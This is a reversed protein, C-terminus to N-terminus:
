VVGVVDVVLVVVVLVVVVVVVVAVLVVHSSLTSTKTTEPHPTTLSLWSPKLPEIRVWDGYRLLARQSNVTLM